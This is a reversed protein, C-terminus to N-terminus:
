KSSTFHCSDWREIFYALFKQIIQFPGLGQVRQVLAQSLEVHGDTLLNTALRLLTRFISADMWEQHKILSAIRPSEDIFSKLIFRVSFPNPDESRGRVASSILSVPTISVLLSQGTVSEMQHACHETLKHLAFIILRVPTM